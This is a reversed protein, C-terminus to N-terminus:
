STPNYCVAKDDDKLRNQHLYSGLFLAYLLAIKPFEIMPSSFMIVPSFILFLKVTSAEASHKANILFGYFIYMAVYILGFILGFRFINLSLWSELAYIKAGAGYFLAVDNIADNLQSTRVSYSGVDTISAGSFLMADIFLLFYSFYTKLLEIQTLSYIGVVIFLTFFLKTSLKRSTIVIYLLYFVLFIIISKSQSLLVLLISFIVFVSQFRFHPRKQIYVLLTLYFLGSYYTVNFFTTAKGILIYRDSKYLKQLIANEPTLVEILGIFIGTLILLKVVLEIGADSILRKEKQVVFCHVLMPLYFMKALSILDAVSQMQHTGFILGIGWILLFVTFFLYLSLISSNIKLKRGFFLIIALTYLIILPVLHVPSRDFIEPFLPFCFLVLLIAINPIERRNLM